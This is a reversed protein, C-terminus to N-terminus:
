PTRRAYYTPLEPDGLLVLMAVASRIMNRLVPDRGLGREHMAITVVLGFSVRATELAPALADEVRAHLLAARRVAVPDGLDPAAIGRRARTALAVSTLGIHYAAALQVAAPGGEMAFVYSLVSPALEAALEEVTRQVTAPDDIPAVRADQMCTAVSILSSWDDRETFVACAAPVDLPQASAPAAVLVALVLAFRM